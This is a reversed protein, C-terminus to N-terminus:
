DPEADRSEQLEKIQSLLAPLERMPASIYMGQRMVTDNQASILGNIQNTIRRKFDYFDELLEYCKDRMDKDHKWRDIQCLIHSGMWEDYDEVSMLNEDADDAKFGARLYRSVLAAILYRSELGTNVMYMPPLQEGDATIALRDFCKPAIESALAEKQALPIYTNSAALMEKTLEIM